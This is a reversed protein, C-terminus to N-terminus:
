DNFVKLLISGSRNKYLAFLLEGGSSSNMFYLSFERRMYTLNRPWFGPTLGIDSAFEIKLEKNMTNPRWIMHTDKMMFSNM